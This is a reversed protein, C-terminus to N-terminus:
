APIKQMRDGWQEWVKPFREPNQIAKYFTLTSVDFYKRFADNFNTSINHGLFYSIVNIRYGDLALLSGAHVRLITSICRRGPMPTSNKDVARRFACAMANLQKEAEKGSKPFFSYSTDTYNRFSAELFSLAIQIDKLRKQNDTITSVPFLQWQWGHKPFPVVLIDQLLDQLQQRPNSFVIEEGRPFHKEYIPLLPDAQVPGSHRGEIRSEM